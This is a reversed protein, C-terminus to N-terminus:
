EPQMTSVLNSSVLDSVFFFIVLQQLSEPSHTSSLTLLLNPFHRCPWLSWVQHHRPHPSAPLFDEFLVGSKWPEARPCHWGWVNSVCSISGNHSSFSLSAGACALWTTRSSNDLSSDPWLDSAKTLLRHQLYLTIHCLGSSPWCKCSSWPTWSSTHQHKNALNHRVRPSGTSQLKNSKGIRWQKGLNEWVGTRQTPSAMWGDWGRRGRRRRGKTKGLMLPTLMSSQFSAGGTTPPFCLM